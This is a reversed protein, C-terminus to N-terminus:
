RKNSKVKKKIFLFCFYNDSNIEKRGLAVFILKLLLGREMEKLDCAILYTCEDGIKILIGELGEYKYPYPVSDMFKFNRFNYICALEQGM